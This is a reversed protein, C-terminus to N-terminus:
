RRREQQVPQEDPWELAESPTADIQPSFLERQLVSAIYRAEADTLMPMFEVLGRQPLDLFVGHDLSAKGFKVDMVEALAFHKHQGAFGDLKLQGEDLTISRKAHHASAAGYTLILTLVAFIGAVILDSAENASTFLLGTLLAFAIGVLILAIRQNRVTTQPTHWIIQLATATRTITINQPQPISKSKHM